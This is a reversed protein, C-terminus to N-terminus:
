NISADERTHGFVKIEISALVARQKVSGHTLDKLTKMVDLEFQNIHFLSKVGSIEKEIDVVRDSVPRMRFSTTKASM